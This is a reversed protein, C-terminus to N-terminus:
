FLEVISSQVSSIVELKVIFVFVNCNNEAACSLFM